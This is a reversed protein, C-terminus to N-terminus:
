KPWNIPASTSFRGVADAFRSSRGFRRSCPWPM